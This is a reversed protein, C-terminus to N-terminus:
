HRSGQPHYIGQEEMLRSVFDFVSERYQVVYERVPYSGILQDEFHAFGYERFVKKLVDPVTMNQFIRCNVVRTLLWLWPRLTARHVVHRHNWGARAFRSVHGQFYRLEGSRLEVNVTMLKGLLASPKVDDKESLLEIDYQFPRGLEERGSMNRLLLKDGLPSTVTAHRKAM